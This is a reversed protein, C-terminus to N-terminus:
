IRGNLFRRVPKWSRRIHPPLSSYMKVWEEIFKRTRADSPYGSGLPLDIKKELEKAIREVERDREVKAIISAASVIPYNEDAKFEIIFQKDFKSKIKSSFDGVLGDIYVVEGELRDIIECFCEREIVNLNKGNNRLDDIKKADIKVLEIRVAVERIEKSLRERRNKTCKKSDRLNLRTIKEVDAFVGAIVMPGFIPGRGAEDIGCVMKPSMKM